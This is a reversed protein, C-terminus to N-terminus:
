GAYGWVVPREDPNWDSEWGSPQEAAHANITLRGCGDFANSLIRTVSLPIVISNLGTCNLFAETGIGTVSDPLTVSTMLSRHKFFDGGIFTIGDAVAVDGTIAFPVVVFATKSKNYLIGCESAYNKNGSAVTIERLGNCASFATSGIGTIGEPINVSKLNDNYRFAVQGIGTLDVPIDVADGGDAYGFYSILTNNVILYKDDRVDSASYIKGSFDSWAAKYAGVAENPVIIAKVFVFENNQSPPQKGAFILTAGWAGFFAYNGVRKISAPIRVSTVKDRNNFAYNAISTVPKNKYTEPIVVEGNASTATVEYETDDNILTFKLKVVGEKGHCASFVSAALILAGVILVLKYLKKM